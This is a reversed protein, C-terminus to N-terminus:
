RIGRDILIDYDTIQGETITVAAPLEKSFGAGAPLDLSIRYSGPPLDFLYEGNADTVAADVVEGASNMIIVRVGSAIRGSKEPLPDGWKQVPSPPGYIVKGTLIGTQAAAKVFDNKTAIRRDHGGCSNTNTFILVFVVLLQGAAPHYIKM